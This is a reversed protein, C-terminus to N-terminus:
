VINKSKTFIMQIDIVSPYNEEIEIIDETKMKEDPRIYFKKKIDKNDSNISLNSYWGLERMYQYVRLVFDKIDSDFTFRLRSRREIPEFDKVTIRIVLKLTGFDLFDNDFEIDVKYGLDEIDLSMDSIDQYIIDDVKNHSEFKKLYKM